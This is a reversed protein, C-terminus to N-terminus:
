RAEEGHTFPSSLMPWITHGLALAQRAVRDVAIAGHVFQHGAAVARRDDVHEVAVIGVRRVRGEHRRQDARFGLRPVPRSGRCFPGSPPDVARRPASIRRRKRVSRRRESGPRSQRRPKEEMYEAADLTNSPLAAFPWHWYKFDVAHIPVGIRPVSFESPLYM